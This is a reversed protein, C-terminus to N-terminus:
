RVVLVPCHALHLVKHAVSGLVLGAFDSLGRSGMVVLDAHEEEAVELIVRADRDYVSSVVDGRASAGLDKLTRVCRDVLEHAETQSEVEYAAEMTALHEQVHLVVIEAGLKVALEAAVTVARNSPESGDVPLLITSIM